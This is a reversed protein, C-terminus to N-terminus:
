VLPRDRRGLKSSSDYAIMRIRACLVLQKLVFCVLKIPQSLNSYRRLFYKFWRPPLEFVEARDPPNASHETGPWASPPALRHKDAPGIARAAPAPLSVAM